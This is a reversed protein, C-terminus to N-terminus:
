LGASPPTFPKYCFDHGLYRSRVDSRRSVVEPVGRVGVLGAEMLICHDALALAHHAAHDTLLVSLGSQKASWIQEQVSAIQAPDVGAFPEDLLLVKPAGCRALTLMLRQREGGSLEGVRTLARHELGAKRVWQLADSRPQGRGVLAVEANDLVSLRAVGTARQPVWSLGARVRQFLPLSTVDEGDIRVCGQDPREAGALLRFATSKGAGNPGIMALLQGQEVELDLSQLAM